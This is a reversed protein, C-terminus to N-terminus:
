SAKQVVMFSAWTWPRRPQRALVERQAARLADAPARGSAWARHLLVAVDRAAADEVDWQTAVVAEAGASLFAAPLGMRGDPGAPLGSATRCASLVVLQLRSLSRREIDEARIVTDGVVLRSWEPRTRNIIAHGAFHFVESTGIEGVLDAAPRDPRDLVRVNTYVSSIQRVEDRSHPLAALEEPAAPAALLARRSREGLPAAQAGGYRVSVREVVHYRGRPDILAAFPVDHLIGDPLVVLDHAAALQPRVPGLVDDFLRELLFWLDAVPREQSLLRQLRAADAMVARVPRRVEFRIRGLPGHGVALIRSDTQIYHLRLTRTNPAGRPVSAERELLAFAGGHDGHRWRGEATGVTAQWAQARAARASALSPSGAVNHALIRKAEDLSAQALPDDGAAAAQAALLGLLTPLQFWMGRRRVSAIAQQLYGRSTASGDLQAHAMALPVFALERTNPDAVSALARAADGMTRTAEIPRGIAALDTSYRPLLFALTTWNRSAAADSVAIGRLYAAAQLLGSARALNASSTLVSQRRLHRCDRLSSLAHQAHHWAEELADHEQYIGAAVGSLVAYAERDATSHLLPLAERATEISAAFGGREFQLLALPWMARGQLHLCGQERAYQAVAELRQEAPRPRRELRDISALEIWAYAAPLSDLQPFALVAGPSSAVALDQRGADWNTAIRTSAIWGAARLRCSPSPCEAVLTEALRAFCNDGTALSLEAAIELARHVIVPAPGEEDGDISRAWGPLVCRLLLERAIDPDDRVEAPDIERNPCGSDDLAGLRIERGSALTPAGPVRPDLQLGLREQVEHRVENAAAHTADLALASLAADLARALSLASDNVNAQRLHCAARVAWADATFASEDPLNLLTLCGEADGLTVRGLAARRANEVTPEALAITELRAAAARLRIPSHPSRTGQESSRDPAGTERLSAVATDIISWPDDPRDISRPEGIATVMWGVGLSFCILLALAAGSRTVRADRMVNMTM